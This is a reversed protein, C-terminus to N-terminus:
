GDNGEKTTSEIKDPLCLVFDSEEESGPVQTELLPRAALASKRRKQKERLWTLWAIALFAAPVALMSRWKWPRCGPPVWCLGDRCHALMWAMIDHKQIAATWSDHKWDPTSPFTLCANGGAGNVAAVM